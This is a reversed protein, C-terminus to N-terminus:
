KEGETKKGREISIERTIRTIDKEMSELRLRIRFILYFLLIVAIYFLVDIGQSSFGLGAIFEDIQKIFIIAVAALGWFILWFVFEAKNINKKYKQWFLRGLFFAIVILAIIQQFM